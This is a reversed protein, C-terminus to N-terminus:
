QWLAPLRKQVPFRKQAPLNKRAQLVKRAFVRTEEPIGLDTRGFEPVWGARSGRTKRSVGSRGYAGGDGLPSGSQEIAVHDRDAMFVAPFGSSPSLTRSSILLNM